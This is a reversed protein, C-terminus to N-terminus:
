SARNTVHVSTKGNDCERLAVQGERTGDKTKYSVESDHQELEEFLVSWGAGQFAQVYDDHMSEISHSSFGDSTKTPGSTGTHVWTISGVDHFGAPLSPQGSMASGDCTLPGRGASESQKDGDGGGGCAALSAVLAITLGLWLFRTM